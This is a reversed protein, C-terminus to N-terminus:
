IKFIELNKEKEDAYEKSEYINLMEEEILRSQANTRYLVAIDKYDIGDDVLKNIQNDLFSWDSIKSKRIDLEDVIFTATDNITINSLVLDSLVCNNFFSIPTETGDLLIKKLNPSQFLEEANYTFDCNYFAIEELNKLELLISIFNEGIICQNISLKKLNPFQLLFSLDTLKKNMWLSVEEISENIGFTDFYKVNQCGLYIKKVNMKQLFSYDKISVSRLYLEKLSQIHILKDLGKYNVNKKSCDDANNNNMNICNGSYM